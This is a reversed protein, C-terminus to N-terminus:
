QGPEPPPLEAATDWSEVWARMAELSIGQGAAMEAEVILV